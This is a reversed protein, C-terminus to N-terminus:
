ARALAHLHCRNRSQTTHKKGSNFRERLFSRLPAKQAPLIELLGQQM